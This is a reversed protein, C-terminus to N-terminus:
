SLLPPSLRRKERASKLLLTPPIATPPYQLAKPLLLGAQRLVELLAINLTEASCQHAIETM